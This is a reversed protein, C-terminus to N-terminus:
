LSIRDTHLPVVCYFVLVSTYGPPISLIVLYPCCLHRCPMWNTIVSQVSDIYSTIITTANVAGFIRLCLKSFSPSTSWPRLFAENYYWRRSKRVPLRYPRCSTRNRLYFHPARTHSNIWTYPQVLSRFYHVVGVYYIVGSSQRRSYAINSSIGGRLEKDNFYICM